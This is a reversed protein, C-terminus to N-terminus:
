TVTAKKIPVDLADTPAPVGGEIAPKPNSPAITYSLTPLLLRDASSGASRNDCRSLSLPIM